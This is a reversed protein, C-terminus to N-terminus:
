PHYRDSMAQILKSQPNALLAQAWVRQAATKEGDHWLVEGYYGAVTAADPQLKLLLEVYQRAEHYHEQEVLLVGMVSRFLM